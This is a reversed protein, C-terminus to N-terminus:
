LEGTGDSELRFYFLLSNNNSGAQSDPWGQVFDHRVPGTELGTAWYNPWCRKSTSKPHFDNIGLPKRLQRAGNLLNAQGLFQALPEGGNRAEIEELVRLERSVRM